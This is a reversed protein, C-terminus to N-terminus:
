TPSPTITMKGVTVVAEDNSTDVVRAEHEYIGDLRASDAPDLTFRIGDDTGDLNVLTIDGGSKKLVTKSGPAERIRFAEWVITAGTLTKADGAGDDVNITIQKTEGRYLSFDQVTKTM